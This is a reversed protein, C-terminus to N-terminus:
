EPSPPESLESLITGVDRRNSALAWAPNDDTLLRTARKIRQRDKRTADHNEPGVMAMISALVVIDDLHRQRRDSTEPIATAAAKAVLAAYLTPCRLNTTRDDAWRVTVLTSRQLAQTAGPAEIARGGGITAVNRGINEPALLDVRGSGRTFKTIGEPSHEPEFGISELATAIEVMAAPGGARVDVALDADATARHGSAGHTAAHVMVMQGGALTWHETGIATAIHDVAAWSEIAPETLFPRLDVVTGVSGPEDRLDATPQDPLDSPTM